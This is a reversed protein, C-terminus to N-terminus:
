GSRPTRGAASGTVAAAGLVVAAALGAATATVASQPEGTSRAVAVWVLGWALAAAVAWRGVASWTRGVTRALLGGVAAAVVLVAVAWAQAGPWPDTWGASALVAAVNAVTAISVWGLYLGATGDVLVRDLARPGPAAALRTALVALVGLLVVIVPVSWGLLGAQVVTIWCANLVLSALLLWGTSRERPDAGRAPLAQRVAWLVLGTYIVSWIAFAPRGPAVLTAEPALAGDGIEPQSPGGAAGSGVFAAAVALLAGVVVTLQRVRDARTVEM